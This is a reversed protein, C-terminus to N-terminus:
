RSQNDLGRLVLGALSRSAFVIALGTVVLVIPWLFMTFLSVGTYLSDSGMIKGFTGTVVGYQVIATAAGYIVFTVGVTRWIVITIAPLEM